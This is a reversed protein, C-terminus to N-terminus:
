GITVFYICKKTQVKLLLSIIETSLQYCTGIIICSLSKTDIGVPQGWCEFEITYIVGEHHMTDTVDGDVDALEASM